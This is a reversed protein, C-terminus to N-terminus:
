GLGPFFFSEATGWLIAEKEAKSLFDAHDRILAVAAPYDTM